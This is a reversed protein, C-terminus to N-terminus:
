STSPGRMKFAAQRLITIIFIGLYLLATINVFAARLRTMGLSKEFYLWFVLFGLLFLLFVILFVLFGLLFVFFGLLFVLFILLFLLFVTLFSLPSTLSLRGWGDGATDDRRRGAEEPGGGGERSGLRDRAACVGRAELGDRLACRYLSLALM